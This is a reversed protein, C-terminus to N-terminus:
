GTDDPEQLQLGLVMDQLRQYGRWLARVGPPGDGTRGLFGGLQAVGRLFVRVTMRGAAQGVLRGIVAVEAATGIVTAAAEPERELACRMQFVRVAVVALLGVCAAMRDATEFRRAEVGCGNKEVDHYQEVMPRHTYWDRRTKLDDATATPVSCWLVWELPDTVGAPPHPEWVRIVWAPLTPHSKRQRTGAPAPIGVAASALRVRATRPPRGGRGPIDVADETVAPLSRVYDLVHARRDHGPTIFVSRNQAVRILFDHGAELCARLGEYDDAGRDCVDVWRCDAPPRGAARFGAAWLASERQRGKRQRPSEVAPAPTRAVLQQFALGLVRRPGPLVAPSNHQLLGRGWEDGIQGLGSMARHTTYDL